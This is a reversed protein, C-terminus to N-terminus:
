RCPLDTWSLPPSLSHSLEGVRWAFSFFLSVSCALTCVGFQGPRTLLGSEVPGPARRVGHPQEPWTCAAQGVTKRQCCPQTTLVQQTGSLSRGTFHKGENRVNAICFFCCFLVHANLCSAMWVEQLAVAMWQAPPEIHLKGCVYLQTCLDQHSLHRLGQPDSFTRRELWEQPATTVHQPSPSFITAIYPLLFLSPTSLSLHPLSHSLSPPFLSLSRTFSACTFSLPTLTDTQLM